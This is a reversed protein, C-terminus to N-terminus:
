ITLKTGSPIKVYHGTRRYRKGNAKVYKSIKKMKCVICFKKVDSDYEIIEHCGRGACMKTKM